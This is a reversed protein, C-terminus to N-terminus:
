LVSEERGTRRRQGGRGQEGATAIRFSRGRAFSPLKLIEEQALKTGQRVREKLLRQRDGM